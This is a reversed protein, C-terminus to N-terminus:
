QGAKQELATRLEDFRARPTPTSEYRTGDKTYLVLRVTAGKEGGLGLAVRDFQSRPLTSSREPFAFHLRVRTADVDVRHFSLLEARAGVIALALLSAAFIVAATARSPPHRFFGQPMDPRRSWLWYAAALLAGVVLGIVCYLVFAGIVAGPETLLYSKM